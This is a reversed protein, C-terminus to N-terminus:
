ALRFLGHPVLIEFRAGDGPAGTERISLGTIGLVERALFLGYGSNRGFAREFIHEKENDPIGIGDDECVIM